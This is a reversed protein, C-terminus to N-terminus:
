SSHPWVALGASSYIVWVQSADAIFAGTVIRFTVLSRRRTVKVITVPADPEKEPEYMSLNFCFFETVVVM